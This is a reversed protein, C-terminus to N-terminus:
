NEETSVSASDGGLPATSNMRALMQVNDWIFASSEVGPATPRNDGRSFARDSARHTIRHDLKAADKTRVFKMHDQYFKDLIAFGGFEMPMSLGIYIYTADESDQNNNMDVDYTNNAMRASITSWIAAAGTGESAAARQQSILAEAGYEKGVALSIFLYTLDTAATVQGTGDVDAMSPHRPEVKQCTKSIANDLTGRAYHECTDYRGCPGAGTGWWTVPVEGGNYKRWYDSNVNYECVDGRAVTRQFTPVQHAEKTGIWDRDWPKSDDTPAAHAAYQDVPECAYQNSCLAHCTSNFLKYSTTGGSNVVCKVSAVTDHGCEDRACDDAWVSQWGKPTPAPTHLYDATKLTPALESAAYDVGTRQLEAASCEWGKDENLDYTTYGTSDLGVLKNNGIIKIYREDADYVGGHGSGFVLVLLGMMRAPVPQKTPDVSVASYHLRGATANADAAFPEVFLEEFCAEDDDTCVLKKIAATGHTVPAGNVARLTFGRYEVVFSLANTAAGTSATYDIAVSATLNKGCLSQRSTADLFAASIVQQKSSFSSRKSMPMVRPQEECRGKVGPDLRCEGQRWLCHGDAADACSTSTSSGACTQELHQRIKQTHVVCSLPLGSGGRQACQFTRWAPEKDKSLWRTGDALMAYYLCPAHQAVPQCKGKVVGHASESAPVALCQLDAECPFHLQEPVTQGNASWFTSEGDLECVSGLPQPRMSVTRKKCMRVDKKWTTGGGDAACWIACRTTGGEGGSVALNTNEPFLSNCGAGSSVVTTPNDEPDPMAYTKRADAGCHGLRKDQMLVLFGKLNRKLYRCMNMRMNGAVPVESDSGERWVRVGVVTCTTAPERRCTSTKRVIKDASQENLVHYKRTTSVIVSDVFHEFLGEPERERRKASAPEAVHSSRVLMAGTEIDLNCTAYPESDLKRWV